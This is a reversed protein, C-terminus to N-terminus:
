KKFTDKYTDRKKFIDILLAAEESDLVNETLLYHQYISEIIGKLFAQDSFLKKPM